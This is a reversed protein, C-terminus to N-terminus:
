HYDELDVRVAYVDEWEFTIRWNGSVRVSFRRPRGRLAHFRFGPVNMDEPRIAADLADLRSLCRAQLRRDVRAIKGTLFLQRLGRHRFSGIVLM